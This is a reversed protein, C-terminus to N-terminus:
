SCSWLLGPEEEECNPTLPLQKTRRSVEENTVFDNWKINYIRRLCWQDLADIKREETVTLSWTESGYLFISLICANYLRFNFDLLWTSWVNKDLERMANRTIAMRQRLNHISRCSENIMSGLHVFKSVCEAVGSWMGLNHCFITWCNFKRRSPSQCSLDYCKITTNRHNRIKFIHSKLTTNTPHNVRLGLLIIFCPKRAM